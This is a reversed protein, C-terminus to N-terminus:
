KFNDINFYVSDCSIHEAKGPTIQKLYIFLYREVSSPLQM